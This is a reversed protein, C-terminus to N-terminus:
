LKYVIEYLFSVNTCYQETNRTVNRTQTMYMERKQHQPSNSTFYYDEM